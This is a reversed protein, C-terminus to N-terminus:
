AAVREAAEGQALASSEAAADDALENLVRELENLLEAHVRAPDREAALLDAIRDPVALVQDRIARYRRAGLERVEDRSVLTGIEEMLELELLQNQLRKGEAHAIRIETTGKAAAGEPKQELPLENIEAGAVTAAGGPTRAARDIDTNRNWAATATHFEIAQLHGRENRKVAEHPVRGDSIAKQVAALRVGRRRAFERLSVWDEIM